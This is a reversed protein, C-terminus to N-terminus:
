ISHNDVLLAYMTAKALNISEETTFNKKLFYDELLIQVKNSVLMYAMHNESVLTEADRRIQLQSNLEIRWNEVKKVDEISLAKPKEYLSILAKLAADSFDIKQSSIGESIAMLMKVDSWDTFYGSTIKEKQNVLDQYKRLTPNLTVSAYYANATKDDYNGNPEHNYTGYVSLVSQLNKVSNRSVTENIAPAISKALAVRSLLPASEKAVSAIPAGGKATFESVDGVVRNNVNKQFAIDVDSVEHLYVSNIKIVEADTYGAKFIEDQLSLSSPYDPFVGTVLKTEGDEITLYMKKRIAYRDWDVEENSSFKALQIVYIDIGKSTPLATLSANPFNKSILTHLVAEGKQLNDFSGLILNHKGEVESNQFFVNSIDSLEALNSIENANVEGLDIVYQTNSQASLSSCILVSLFILSFRLINMTNSKSQQFCM